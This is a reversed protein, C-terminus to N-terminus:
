AGANIASVAAVMEDPDVGLRAAEERALTLVDVRTPVDLGLYRARRELIRLATDALRGDGDLVRPWLAFLMADLRELEMKRVEEAPEQQWRRVLTQVANFAGSRDAYGLAAAIADYSMGTKRLEVAKGMRQEADLDQETRM